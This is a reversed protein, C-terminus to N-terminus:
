QLNQLWATLVGKNEGTVPDTQTIVWQSFVIGRGGMSTQATAMEADINAATLTFELPTVYYRLDEANVLPTSPPAILKGM